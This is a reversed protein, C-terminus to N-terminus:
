DLDLFTLTSRWETWMWRAFAYAGLGSPDRNHARVTAEYIMIQLFEM